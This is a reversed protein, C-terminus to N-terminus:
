PYLPSLLVSEWRQVPPFPYAPSIWELCCYFGRRNGLYNTHFVKAGSDNFELVPNPLHARDFPTPIFFRSPHM